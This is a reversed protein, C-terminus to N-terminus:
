VTADDQGPNLGRSEPPPAPAEEAPPDFTEPVKSLSRRMALFLLVSAVILGLVILLGWGGAKHSEAALEVVPRAFVHGDHVTM